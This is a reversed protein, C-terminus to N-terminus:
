ADSHSEPFLDGSGFISSARLSSHRITRLARPALGHARRIFDFARETAAVSPGRLVIGQKAVANIFCRTWFAVSM